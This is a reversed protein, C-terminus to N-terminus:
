TLNNRREASKKAFATQVVIFVPLVYRKLAHFPASKPYYYNCSANKTSIESM